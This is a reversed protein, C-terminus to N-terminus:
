SKKRAVFVSTAYTGKHFFKLERCELGGRTMIEITDLGFDRFVLVGDDRVTDGHKVPPLYHKIEAGVLGARQVTTELLPNVPVTFVHYGGPKLVRRIESLSKGLDAVHELVDSNVIIDFSNDAFTLGELTENRIGDFMKGFGDQALFESTQYYKCALLEKNRFINYNSTEYISLGHESLLKRKLEGATSCGCLELVVGALKRMRLNAMCNACLYNERLALLSLSSEDSNSKEMLEALWSDLDTSFVVLSHCDCVPCYEFSSFQWINRHILFRALSKISAVPTIRM